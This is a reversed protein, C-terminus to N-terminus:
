PQTELWYGYANVIRAGSPHMRERDMRGYTLHVHGCLM